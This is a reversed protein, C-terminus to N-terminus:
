IRTLLGVYYKDKLTSLAETGKWFHAGKAGIQLNLGQM